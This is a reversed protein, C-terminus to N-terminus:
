EKARGEYCVKLCRFGLKADRSFIDYYPCKDGYCHAYEEVTKYPIVVGDTRIATNVVQTYKRFPCRFGTKAMGDTLIELVELGDDLVAYEATKVERGDALMVLDSSYHKLHEQLQYNTM